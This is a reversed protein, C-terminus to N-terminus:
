RDWYDESNYFEAIEEPSYDKFTPIHNKNSTLNTEEESIQSQVTSPFDTNESPFLPLQNELVKSTSREAM